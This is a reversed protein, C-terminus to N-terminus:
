GTSLCFFPAAVYLYGSLGSFVVCDSVRFCTAHNVELIKQELDILPKEFALTVPKPKEELPKFHSLYALPSKSEPDINDPWPYEHKKGKRVGCVVRFKRGNGLRSGRLDKLRIGNSKRSLRTYADSALFTSSAHSSFGFVLGNDERKGRGCNGSILSVTTAM